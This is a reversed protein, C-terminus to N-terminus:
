KGHGLVPRGPTVGEVLRGEEVVSVGNVLVHHIGNSARAPERYTAPAAIARPPERGLASELGAPPIEGLM